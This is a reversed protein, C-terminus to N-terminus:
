QSFRYFRQPQNSAGADAFQIAGSSDATATGITLWNAVALNTSAQIQYSTNNSGVGALRFVGSTFTGSLIKVLPAATVLLRPQNGRGYNYSNFLYGIQNDAAYLLFTVNGGCATEAVLNATLPLAYSVPVNNGPPTYTNTGLIEHPGSLLDPLSNYAVGDTTPVNPTGTGEAWHDNSLWAIAFKGGTIVPFAASNPQVGSTGYNSTLALSVGTILWHGAGYNTNFLCVTNSLNFKLLSQYEGGYSSAPAVVLTGGAGFNLETLDAGEPNYPSGTALFADAVTMNTVTVQAKGISGLALMTLCIIIAPSCNM